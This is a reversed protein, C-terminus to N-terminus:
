ALKGRGTRVRRAPHRHPAPRSPRVDLRPEEAAVARANAARRALALATAAAEPPIMVGAAEAVKQCVTCHVPSAPGHPYTMSEPPLYHTSCETCVFVLRM